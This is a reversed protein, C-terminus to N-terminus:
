TELRTSIYKYKNVLITIITSYHIKLFGHETLKLTKNHVYLYYIIIAM